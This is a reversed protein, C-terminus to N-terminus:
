RRKKIDGRGGWSGIKEGSKKGKKERFNSLLRRSLFDLLLGKSFTWFFERIKEQLHQGMQKENRIRWRRKYITWKFLLLVLRFPLFFIIIFARLLSSILFIIFSFLFSPKGGLVSKWFNSVFANWFTFFFFFLILPLISFNM